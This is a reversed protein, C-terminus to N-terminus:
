QLNELCNGQKDRKGRPCDDQKGSGIIGGEDYVPKEYSACHSLILVFFSLTFIKFILNKNQKM